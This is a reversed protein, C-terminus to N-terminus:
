KTFAFYYDKTAGDIKGLNLLEQYKMVESHGDGWTFNIKAGHRMGRLESTSGLPNSTSSPFLVRTWNAANVGPAPVDSAESDGVLVTISPKKMMNIKKRDRGDTRFEAFGAYNYNWGYGGHSTRALYGTYPGVIFSPCLFTGMGLRADENYYNSPINLGLYPSIEYKWAAAYQGQSADTAPKNWIPLWGKSDDSYMLVGSGIQKLNGTCRISKAQERAKNLAPLLMSALIAIIAIVVLLEILTFFCKKM